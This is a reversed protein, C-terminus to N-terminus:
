TSVACDPRGEPQYVFLIIQWRLPPSDSEITPGSLLRREGPPVVVGATHMEVAQATGNTFTVRLALRNIEIPRDFESVVEARTPYRDGNPEEPPIPTADASGSGCAAPPPATGASTPGATAPPATTPGAPGPLSQGVVVTTPATSPGRSTSTTTSTTRIAADPEDDTVIAVVAGAAIVSGVIFTVAGL